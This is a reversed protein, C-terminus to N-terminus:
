LDIHDPREVAVPSEDIGENFAPPRKNFLFRFMDNETKVTKRLTMKFSLVLLLM